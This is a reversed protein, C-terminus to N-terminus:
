PMKSNIDRIDIIPIGGILYSDRGSVAKRRKKQQLGYLSAVERCLFVRSNVTTDHLTNWNNETKAIVERVPKPARKEQQALEHKASTLAAGRQDLSARRGRIYIGMQQIEDRLAEIHDLTTQTREVTRSLEATVSEHSLTASAKGNAQLPGTPQSGRPGQSQSLAQEVERGLAERSLVAQIHQLRPEYLANRSCTPCSFLLSSTPSKLCVHCEIVSTEMISM